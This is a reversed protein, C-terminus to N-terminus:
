QYASEDDLPIGDRYRVKTNFHGEGDFLSAIGKGKEVSSSPSSEGKKFYSGRVLKDKEYEEMLMLSGDLYWSTLHGQKQNHAMERQSEQVGNEYWTKVTGHIKGDYWDISLKCTPKFDEKKIFPKPPYYRIEQGHKEGNKVFYRCTLFQNSDYISVEGEQVGDKFEQYEWLGNEDIELRRGEGKVVSTLLAGNQDYYCGTELLGEQYTEKFSLVNPSFYGISEGDLVGLKYFKSEALEGAPFYSKVFGDLEGKVYNESKALQGNAHFYSAAGDLKGKDYHMKAILHGEEDFAESTGEFSWTAIAKEDIDAIGQIVKSAIKIKGNSFWEYYTGCARSNKAELYQKIQGNPHYSTIISHGDGNKDKAFIRLVKKYPQPALFNVSEYSKLREKLSITESIENQDIININLLPEKIAIPKFPLVNENKAVPTEVTSTQKLCGTTLVLLVFFLSLKKYNSKM